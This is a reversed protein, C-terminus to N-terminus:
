RELREKPRESKGEGNDQRESVRIYFIVVNFGLKPAKKDAKFLGM